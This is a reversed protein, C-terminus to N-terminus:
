NQHLINFLAKLTSVASENLRVVKKQQRAVFLFLNPLNILPRTTVESYELSLDMEEECINSWFEIGQLCVEDETSRIAGM